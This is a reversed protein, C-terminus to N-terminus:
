GLFWGYDLEPLRLKPWFLIHEVLGWIQCRDTRCPGFKPAPCGYGLRLHTGGPELAGWQWLFWNELGVLVKWSLILESLGRPEFIMTACRDRSLFLSTGGVKTDYLAQILPWRPWQRPAGVSPRPARSFLGRTKSNKIMYHGQLGLSGMIAKFHTGKLIKLELGPTMYQLKNNAGLSSDRPPCEVKKWTPTHLGSKRLTPSTQSSFIELNPPKHALIQAFISATSALIEFNEWIPRTFQSKNSSIPCKPVVPSAHFPTKRASRFNQM